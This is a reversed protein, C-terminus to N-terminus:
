DQKCCRAPTTPSPEQRSKLSAVNIKQDKNACSSSLKAKAPTRSVQGRTQRPPPRKLFLRREGERSRRM